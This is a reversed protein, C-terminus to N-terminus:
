CETVTSGVAVRGPTAGAAGPACMVFSSLDRPTAGKNEHMASISPTPPQSLRRMELKPSAYLSLGTAELAPPEEEPAARGECLEHPPTPGAGGEGGGGQTESLGHVRATADERGGCVRVGSM